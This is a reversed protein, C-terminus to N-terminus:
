QQETVLECGVRDMPHNGIGNGEGPSRESEPISYIERANAPPNKVM